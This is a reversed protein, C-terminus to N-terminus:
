LSRACFHFCRSNPLFVLGAVRIISTGLRRRSSNRAIVNNRRFVEPLVTEKAKVRRGQVFTYSLTHDRNQTAHVSPPLVRFGAMTSARGHGADKRVVGVVFVVPHKPRLYQDANNDDCDPTLWYKQRVSKKRPTSAGVFDQRFLRMSFAPMAHSSRSVPAACSSCDSGLIVVGGFWYSSSSM